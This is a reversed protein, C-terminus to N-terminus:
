DGTIHGDWIDEWHIFSSSYSVELMYTTFMASPFPIYLYVVLLRTSYWHAHYTSIDSKHVFKNRTSLLMAKMIGELTSITGTPIYRLAETWHWTAYATNWHKKRVLKAKVRLGNFEPMVQTTDVFFLKAFHLPCPLLFKQKQWLSSVILCRKKSQRNYM